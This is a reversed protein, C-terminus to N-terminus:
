LDIITWEARFASIHLRQEHAATSNEAILQNEQYVEQATGQRGPM